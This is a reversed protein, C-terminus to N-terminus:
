FPNLPKIPKMKNSMNIKIARTYIIYVTHIHIIFICVCVYVYIHICVYTYMYVTCFQGLLAFYM